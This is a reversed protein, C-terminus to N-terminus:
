LSGGILNVGVPRVQLLSVDEKNSTDGKKQM